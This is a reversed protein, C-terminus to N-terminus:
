LLKIEKKVEEYYDYEVDNVYVSKTNQIEDVCRLALLKAVSSPISWSLENFGYGMPVETFKLVLEEAKEKPTM